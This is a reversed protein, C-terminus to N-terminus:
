LVTSLHTQTAAVITPAAWPCVCISRRVWRFISKVGAARVRGSSNPVNSGAVSALWAASHACHLREEGQRQQRQRRERGERVPIGVAFHYGGLVRHYGPRAVKRVVREGHDEDIVVQPGDPVSTQHVIGVAIVDPEVGITGARARRELPLHLRVGWGRARNDSVNQPGGQRMGRVVGDSHKVSTREATKLTSRRGHPIGVVLAHPM